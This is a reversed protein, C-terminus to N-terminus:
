HCGPAVHSLCRFRSILSAQTGLRGGITGPSEALKVQTFLM